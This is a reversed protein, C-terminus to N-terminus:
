KFFMNLNACGRRELIKIVNQTNIIFLLLEKEIGLKQIHEKSIKLANRIVSLAHILNDFAEDTIVFSQKNNSM